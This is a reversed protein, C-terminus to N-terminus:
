LPSVLSIKISWGFNSSYFFFFETHATWSTLTFFWCFNRIFVLVLCTKLLMSMKMCHFWCRRYELGLVLHTSNLFASLAAQSILKTIPIVCYAPPWLSFKFLLILTINAEHHLRNHTYIYKIPHFPITSAGSPSRMSRKGINLWRCSAPDRTKNVDSRTCHSLAFTFLLIYAPHM